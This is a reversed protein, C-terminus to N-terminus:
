VTASAAPIGVNVPYWLDARSVEICGIASRRHLPTDRLLAYASVQPFTMRAKLFGGESLM